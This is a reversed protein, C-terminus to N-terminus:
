FFGENDNGSYQDRNNDGKQNTCNDMPKCPKQKREPVFFPKGIKASNIATKGNSKDAIEKYNNSSFASREHGGFYFLPYAFICDLNKKPTESEPCNNQLYQFPKEFYVNQFNSVNGATVTNLNSNIGGAGVATFITGTYLAAWQADTM